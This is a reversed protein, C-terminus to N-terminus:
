VLLIVGYSAVAIYQYYVITEYGLHNSIEYIINIRLYKQAMNINNDSVICLANTVCAHM